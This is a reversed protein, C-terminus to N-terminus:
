GVHEADCGSMGFTRRRQAARREGVPRKTTKRVQRRDATGSTALQNGVLSSNSVGSHFLPFGRFMAHPNSAIPNKPVLRSVIQNFHRM